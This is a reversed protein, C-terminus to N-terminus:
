GLYHSKHWEILKEVGLRFPTTPKFDFDKDLITVDSHTDSLDGPQMPLFEYRGKKGIARELEHIVDM